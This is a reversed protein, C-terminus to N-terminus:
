FLSKQQKWEDWLKKLNPRNKVRSFTFYWFAFSAQQSVKMGRHNGLAKKLQSNVGELSNNSHPILPYDLHIFFPEWDQTLLKWGRRLNGHTYWWKKKTGTGVTREKLRHDYQREWQILSFIWTRKEQESRVHVLKGAIARLLRTSLFPSKKPLLRKAQRVVHALCRQHPLHPFFISVGSVISGKWDSIIGSPYNAKQDQGKNEGLLRALEELDTKLALYSESNWFSWFLNERRTVDRYVMIVGGRKLWKGDLGLVWPKQKNCGLNTNIDTKTGIDNNAKPPLISWVKEPILPCDFFIKFKVSLTSRSIGKERM